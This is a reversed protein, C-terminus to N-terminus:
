PRVLACDTLARRYAAVETDFMDDDAVLRGSDLLGASVGHEVIAAADVALWVADNPREGYTRPFAETLRAAVQRTDASAMLSSFLQEDSVPAATAPECMDSM